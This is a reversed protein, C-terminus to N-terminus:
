CHGARDTSPHSSTGKGTGNCFPPTQAQTAAQGMARATAESFPYSSNLMHRSMYKYISIYMYMFM